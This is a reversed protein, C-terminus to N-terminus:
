GNTKGGASEILSTTPESAVAPAVLVASAPVPLVTVAANHQNVGIQETTNAQTANTNVELLRALAEMALGTAGKSEIMTTAAEVVGSTHLASLAGQKAKEQVVGNRMDNSNREAYASSLLAPIALAIFGMIPTIDRQVITGVVIATIALAILLIAAVISFKPVNTRPTIVPVPAPTNLVYPTATDASTM